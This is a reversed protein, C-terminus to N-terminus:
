NAENEWPWPGSVWNWANRDKNSMANVPGCRENIAEALAEREKVLKHYYDLAQMCNPYANLYLVTDIIAFDIVRLKKVLNKCSSSLMRMDRNDNDACGVNNRPNMRVNGMHNPSVANKMRNNRMEAM